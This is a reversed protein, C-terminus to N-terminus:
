EERAGALARRVLIGLAVIVIVAVFSVILWVPGPAGASGAVPSVTTTGSATGAFEGGQSATAPPSATAKATFTFTGEIPHSDSSVVRWIVTYAGAPAGPKIPQTVNNDVIQAPGDSQNTGTSDKVLVETGLGIPTHDFTLVVSAPVAQVTAGNTPNSAELVDHAQAAPAVLLVGAALALVTAARRLLIRAERRIVPM